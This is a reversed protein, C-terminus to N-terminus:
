SAPQRAQLGLPVEGRFGVTCLPGVARCGASIPVEHRFSGFDTKEGRLPTGATQQFPPNMKERIKEHM